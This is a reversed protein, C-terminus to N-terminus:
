LASNCISKSVLEEFPRSYNMDKDQFDIKTDLIEVSDFIDTVFDIIRQPLLKSDSLLKKFKTQMDTPM